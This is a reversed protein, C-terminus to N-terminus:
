SRRTPESIHILSLEPINDVESFFEILEPSPDAVADIGKNLATEFDERSKKAGDRKFAEALKAGTEDTQWMHDDLLKTQLSGYGDWSDAVTHWKDFINHRLTSWSPTKTRREPAPRLPMGDRYFYRFDEYPNESMPLIEPNAGTDRQPESDIRSTM